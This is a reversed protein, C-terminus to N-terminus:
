FAAQVGLQARTRDYDRTNSDSSSNTFNVSGTVFLNDYVEYSAGVNGNLITDNFSGPALPSSKSAILGDYDVLVANAGAFATLKPSIVWSGQVGLRFVQREDYAGIGLVPWNTAFIRTNREEIGYHVFARVNVTESLATRMTAEVYPSWRSEGGGEPKFYQGGANLVVVTTPGLEHEVGVLFYHSQSNRDDSTQYQYRYSATWVTSPTARYRFQNYFLHRLYDQNDAENFVVGSLRYGTNTAFRETWRYGASNDSSWRAYSGNRRDTAIGYDYDPEQEYVIDNRSRLRLCENVRHVFNLGGRANPFFDDKV